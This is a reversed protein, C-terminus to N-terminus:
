GWPDPPSTERIGTARDAIDRELLRTGEPLAAKAAQSFGVDFLTIDDVRETKGSPGMLEGRAALRCALQNGLFGGGGTILVKM